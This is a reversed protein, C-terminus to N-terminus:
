DKIRELIVMVSDVSRPATIYASTIVKYGREFWANLTGDMEDTSLCHPLILTHYKGYGPKVM